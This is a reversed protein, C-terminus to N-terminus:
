KSLTMAVQEDQLLNLARVYFGRMIVLPEGNCSLLQINFKQIDDQRSHESDAREVFVYGASTLSRVLEIEDLAFPLYTKGEDDSLMGMVTQLAGDVICPHLLYQEFSQMLSGDLAFPALGQRDSLYIREITQFSTGYDFGAKKFQEYFTEREICQSSQAMIEQVCIPSYANSHNATDCNEFYLRGESHVVREGFADISTVEFESSEGILKLFTQVRQEEENFVLPMAWVLDKMKNVKQEGAVTGAFCAIEIFGAGPFLSQGNVKHDKSYYAKDNLESTFSVMRLTSSNFSVLPHLQETKSQEQTTLNNTSVESIWCRQKAFVYGPLSVRLPKGQPYLDEWLVPLGSVWWQAISNVDHNSVLIKWENGQESTLKRSKVKAPNVSGQFIASNSKQWQRLQEILEATNKVIFALRESMAERGTQLTYAVSSLSLEPHQILYKLIQQVNAQLRERNMASIPILYSSLEKDSDAPQHGVYEDILVCANVGGAGFSNILARRAIGSDVNWPTVEHQLYFPSAEFAINPNVIDSHLSPVLTKHKMQLLIKAIGAIGAASESHGINSKVSGLACYKQRETQSQFAQNLSLVEISDGLQTGTGHGEVYQISEPHVLAKKLTQQILSTQANPNPASFGNSRGAHDFASAKILGYIVDGDLEAQSLPKLLLAGVGEGPVFGDDGAGFSCNKGTQSIMRRQCFSQYKSPHLYLNVGGAIALQCDGKLLSDCAMHIAVLSSSCATDVPLSPGKFDFFYSVRNAISWPMASASIMNGKHWEEPVLQQYSNTTVGVYVGVDAGKNKPHMERLSDRTYGADELTSWVTQLFLREQPDMVKAENLSLNFFEPDFKDFDSLFGGWKCYIKGRAAQEPDEDYFSDKDWRSRPVEEISDKGQKLNEWFQEMNDADPFKVSMGVIAVPESHQVQIKEQNFATAETAKQISPVTALTRAQSNGYFRKQLAASSHQSLFEALEAITDYEYFLTKPLPGLDRELQVNIRGIIISDMGYAEFREEVDMQESGLKIENQLLQKIYSETKLRLEEESVSTDISANEFTTEPSKNRLYANIKSKQGYLAVAQDLDLTLCDEFLAIGQEKSLPMMGTENKTVLIDQDSLTM